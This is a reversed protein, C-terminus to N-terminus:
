DFHTRDHDVVVRGRCRRVESQPDDLIDGFNRVDVSNQQLRDVGARDLSGLESRIDQVTGAKIHADITRFVKRYRSLRNKEIPTGLGTLWTSVQDLPSLGDDVPTNAAADCMDSRELFAFGQVLVALAM